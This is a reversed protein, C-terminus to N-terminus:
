GLSVSTSSRTQGSGCKARRQTSIHKQNLDLQVIIRDYTLRHPPFTVRLGQLLCALRVGRQLNVPKDELYGLDKASSVMREKDWM